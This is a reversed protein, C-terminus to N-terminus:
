LSNASFISNGSENSNIRFYLLPSSEDNTSQSLTCEEVTEAVFSQAQAFDSLKVEYSDEDVVVNQPKLNGHIINFSQLHHLARLLSFTIQKVKSMDMDANSKLIKKLDTSAYESVVFYGCM